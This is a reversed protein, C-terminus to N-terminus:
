PMEWLHWELKEDEGTGRRRRRRRLVLEWGGLEALWGSDAEEEEGRGRGRKRKKGNPKKSTGVVVVVDNNNPSDAASSTHSIPSHAFPRLSLSLFPIKALNESAVFKEIQQALQVPHFFGTAAMVSVDGRRCQERPVGWQDHDDDEHNAEARWRIKDRTSDGGGLSVLGSWERYEQWFQAAAASDDPGSDSDSDSDSSALRFSGSSLRRRKRNENKDKETEGAHSLPPVDPFASALPVAVDTLTHLDIATPITSCAIKSSDGGKSDVFSCLLDFRKPERRAPQGALEDLLDTRAPWAALAQKTREFGPKGARFTPAKLDIEIIYRQRHSGFASARGPLGLCEYTDKTVNLVLRGRGDLCVIDADQGDDLSLAVLHGQRIHANLFEVDLLHALNVRLALQATGTAQAISELARVVADTTAEKDDNHPIVADLQWAYPVRRIARTLRTSQDALQLGASYTRTDVSPPPPPRCSAKRHHANM